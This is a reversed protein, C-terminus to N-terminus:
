RGEIIKRLWEPPERTDIAPEYYYEYFYPQYKQFAQVIKIKNEQNLFGALGVEKLRSENNSYLNVMGFIYLGKEGYKTNGVIEAPTFNLGLIVEGNTGSHKTAALTLDSYFIVNELVANTPNLNCKTFAKRALELAIEHDKKGPYEKQYDAYREPHDGKITQLIEYEKRWSSIIADRPAIEHLAEHVATAYHYLIM